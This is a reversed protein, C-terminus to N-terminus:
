DAYAVYDATDMVDAFNEPEVGTKYRQILYHAAYALAAVDESPMIDEKISELYFMAQILDKDDKM